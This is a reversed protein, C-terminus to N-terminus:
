PNGFAAATYLATEGRKNHATVDASAAILATVGQPSGYWGALHLATNNDKSQAAVDAGAALESKLDALTTTKWWQHRLLNM